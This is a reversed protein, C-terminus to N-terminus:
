PRLLGAAYRWARALEQRSLEGLAVLVIAYALFASCGIAALLIVRIPLSFPLTLDGAFYYLIPGTLACAVACRVFSLYPFRWKFLFRLVITLFLLLVVTSILRSIGCAVYGLQPILWWNSALNVALAIASSVLLLQPRKVVHIGLAAFQSLGFVCGAAALWPVVTYSEQSPGFAIANLAPRALVALFTALPLALILFNRTVSGVLKEAAELGSTEFIRIVLPHVGLLMTAYLMVMTQDSLIYGIAYIGVEADGRFHQLMYRDTNNLLYDLFFTFAIPLGYLLITRLLAKEEPGLVFRTRGFHRHMFILYVAVNVIAAGWLVGSMGWELAVGLIVALALKGFGNIASAVSYAVPRNKTRLMALGLEFLSRGAFVFAGAVLLRRYTGILGDPGALWLGLCVIIGMALTVLRLLGLVGLYAEEQETNEYVPHFRYVVLIQWFLFITALFLALRMTLDYQGIEAETFYYTFIPIVAFGAIAIAVKGPLYLFPAATAEAAASSVSQDESQSEDAGALKGTM